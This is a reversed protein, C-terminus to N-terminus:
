SLIMTPSILVYQTQPLDWVRSLPTCQASDYNPSHCVSALPATAILRGGISSNLAQWDSDSPWCEDGPLCRCPADNTVKASTLCTFCYLLLYTLGVASFLNTSGM